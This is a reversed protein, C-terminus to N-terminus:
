TESIVKEAAPTVAHIRGVLDSGHLQSLANRSHRHQKALLKWIGPGVERWPTVVRLGTCERLSLTKIKREVERTPTRAALASGKQDLKAQLPRWTSLM